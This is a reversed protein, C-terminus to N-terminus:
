ILFTYIFTCFLIIWLSSEFLKQFSLLSFVVNINLLVFFAIVIFFIYHVLQGSQIQILNNAYRKLVNALGLPGIFEILGRDLNILTISYGFKALPFVLFTNFLKDLFWKKNFFFTIKRGIMSLQLHVIVKKASTNVLCAIIIATVSLLLPILKVYTPITEVEILTVTVPHFFISNKWFETGFGIFLDKFLYGFFISGFALILLPVLLFWSGEHVGQMIIRPSNSKNLFTLFLLRFSYYATFFVSLTGLWYIFTSQIATINSYKSVYALELILDKSFFGTLFPFGVLSLSAIFIVSYTYPLIQNIGGMRRMDQEDGLSHIVSGASLFLLAKFFAHNALHFMSVNYKSIGLIFVMYGLQSTTSFAIVKKLDYQFGGITAAFFCTLAGIISVCVLINESFELIPSCRVLLFVGATVMTAAHILASVPTPGEMADPLWTHLGLQASKGVAGIFLFISILTIVNLNNNLLHSGSNIKYAVLSFIVEYELSKFTHFILFMALCLGIDGVKNVLIAKIASQNANLRTYWFSILLYSVLGVGEWGIFMQVFNDATVLLFMFFTFLSLYSMFRPKHPDFKMYATSYTHVLCSISSIIILMVVTLSDFLFSWNIVLYDCVIWPTIEIYCDSGYLGIEIFAVWALISTLFLILCSIYSSGEKGLYRGFFGVIISNLLPLLIILLYM